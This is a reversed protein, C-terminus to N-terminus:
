KKLMKELCNVAEESIDCMQQYVPVQACLDEILDFVKAVSQKNWSNVTVQTYISQVAQFMSLKTVTNEKSQGLMVIAKIPYSENRCIDSTGCIPWGCARWIGDQKQLLSKDGNITEAQQYTEWLGAQTSKGVGSPASFLIAEQDKTIYACHFVLSDRDLMRRELALLSAFMPALTLSEVEDKKVWVTAQSKSEEQYYAYYGESGRVGIQRSELSGDRYICIDGRRSSPKKEPVPLAEVVHIQYTYDVKEIEKEFANFYRPIPLEEKSEIAFCFGSIEYTKNM